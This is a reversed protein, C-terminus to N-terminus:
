PIIEVWKSISLTKESGSSDNLSSDYHFALKCNGSVTYTNSFFSGCYTISCDLSADSYPAFIQGVFTAASNHFGIKNGTTAGNKIATKVHSQIAVPNLSKMNIKSDGPLMIIQLRKAEWNDIKSGSYYMQQTTKIGQMEPMDVNSYITLKANPTVFNINLSANNVTQRGEGVIAIVVEGAVNITDINELKGCAIYHKDKDTLGITVTGGNVSV